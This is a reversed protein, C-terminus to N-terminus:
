LSGKLSPLPLSLSGHHGPAWPKAEVMEKISEEEQRGRRLLRPKWSERSEMLVGALLLAPHSPLSAFLPQGLALM